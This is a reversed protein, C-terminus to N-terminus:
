KTGGKIGGKIEAETAKSSPAGVVTGPPSHAGAAELPKPAEVMVFPGPDTCAPTAVPASAAGGASKASALYRTALKDTVLCLKFAGVKDAWAGRAATELSKAKAEESLPPLKANVGAAGFALLLAAAGPATLPFRM